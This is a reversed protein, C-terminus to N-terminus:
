RRDAAAMVLAAKGFEHAIEKRRVEEGELDADDDDGGDGALKVGASRAAELAESERKVECADCKVELTGTDIGAGRLVPSVEFVELEEIVQRIGLQREDETPARSAKINFGYSWEGLKGLGKVTRFHDLGHTTDMFFELDALQDDGKERTVGKGVPLSGGWSAHGFASIQVEQIGIAGKEIVDGDLDKVGSTGFKALVKGTEEGDDGKLLVVSFTKRGTTELKDM